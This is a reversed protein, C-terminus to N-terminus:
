RGRLFAALALADAIGMHMSVRPNPHIAARSVEQEIAAALELPDFKQLIPGDPVPDGREVARQM